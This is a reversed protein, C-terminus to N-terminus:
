LLLMGQEPYTELHMNLWDLLMSPLKERQFTLQSHAGGRLVLVIPNNNM